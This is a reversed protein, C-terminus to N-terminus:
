APMPGIFGPDAGKGSGILSLIAQIGEASGQAGSTGPQIGEYLAALAELIGSEALAGSQIGAAIQAMGGQQANGRGIAVQSRFPALTEELDALARSTSGHLVRAGSDMASSGFLGRSVGANLLSGNAQTERDLIRQEAARGFGAISKEAQDYGATTAKLGRTRWRTASATGLRNAQIANNIAQKARYENGKAAQKAQNAQIAGLTGEGASAIGAAAGPSM